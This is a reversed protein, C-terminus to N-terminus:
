PAEWDLAYIQETGAERSMLLYDNSAAASWGWGTLPIGELNAVREVKRDRIRVRWFWHM